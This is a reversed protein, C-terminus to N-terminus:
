SLPATMGAMSELKLGKEGQPIPDGPLTTARAIIEGRAKRFKAQSAPDLSSFAEREQARLAPDRSAAMSTLAFRQLPSEPVGYMKLTNQMATVSMPSRLTIPQSVVLTMDTLTDVMNDVM